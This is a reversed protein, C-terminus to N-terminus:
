VAIALENEGFDVVFGDMRVGYARGTCNHLLEHVKGVKSGYGDVGPAVRVTDGIAFGAFAEVLECNDLWLPVLNGYATLVHVLPLDSGTIDDISTVTAIAGVLGVPDQRSGVVVKVKDRVKIM